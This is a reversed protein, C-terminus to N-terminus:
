APFQSVAHAYFRVERAKAWARPHGAFGVALTTDIYNHLGAQIIDPGSIDIDDLARVSPRVIAIHGPKDDHHNRYCAVVFLGDNASRVAAAATDLARWGASTGTTQLWDLQANALLTASHDPPRLIYIGLRKAVAAVFASCHTHKTGNTIPRGTPAGTEWNVHQYALWLRDVGLGDYFRALREALPSIASVDNAFAAATPLLLALGALVVNRRTPM